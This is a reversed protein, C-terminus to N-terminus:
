KKKVPKKPTTCHKKYFEEIVSKPPISKGERDKNINHKLVNGKNDYETFEKVRTLKKKCDIEISSIDHDYNQYDISKYLLESENGSEMREKREEATVIYYIKFPIINSSKAINTKSCYYVGGASDKGFLDWV